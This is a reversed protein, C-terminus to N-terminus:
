EHGRQLVLTCRPNKEGKSHTKLALPEPIANLKDILWQKTKTWINGQITEHDCVTWKEGLCGTENKKLILNDNHIGIIEVEKSSYGYSFDSQNMVIQFIDGIEIIHNPM